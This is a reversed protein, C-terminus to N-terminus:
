RQRILRSSNALIGLDTLSQLAAAFIPPLYDLAAFTLGLLNYVATFGINVRVVAMTRRAIRFAEPVLGWDERMLAVHAADLAVDTGVPSLERPRTPIWLWCRRVFPTYRQRVRKSSPHLRSM